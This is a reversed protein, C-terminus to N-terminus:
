KQFLSEKLNNNLKDYFYNNNNKLYSFPKLEDQLCLIQDNLTTLSPFVKKENTDKLYNSSFFSNLAKNKISSNHNLQNIGFSNINHNSNNSSSQSSHSSHSSNSRCYSHGHHNNNIPCYSSIHGHDHNIKNRNNVDDDDSPQSNTTLSHSLFKYEGNFLDMTNTQDTKLNFNQHCPYSNVKKNLKFPNNSNNTHSSNRFSHSFTYNGKTPSPNGNYYTHNKQGNAHGSSTCHNHGNQPTNPNAEDNEHFYCNELGYFNLEQANEPSFIKEKKKESLLKDDTGDPYKHSFLCSNGFPCSHSDQPGVREFFKCPIRSCRSRFREIIHKKLPGSHCYIDSPIFHLSVTQCVPCKRNLERSNM